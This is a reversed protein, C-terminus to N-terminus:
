SYDDFPIVRKLNQQDWQQVYILQELIQCVELCKVYSFLKKLFTDEYEYVMCVIIIWLRPRDSLYLIILM